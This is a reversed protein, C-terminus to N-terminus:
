YLQSKLELWKDGGEEKPVEVNAKVQGEFYGTQNPVMEVEIQKTGNFYHTKEYKLYESINGESNIRVLSPEGEIGSVNIARTANMETSMRPFALTGGGDSNVGLDTSNPSTINASANLSFSEEQVMVGDIIFPSVAIAGAIVLLGGILAAKLKHDHIDLRDSM